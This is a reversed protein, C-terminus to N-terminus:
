IINFTHSTTKCDTDTVYYYCFEGTVGIETLITTTGILEGEPYISLDANVVGLDGNLSYYGSCDDNVGTGICVVACANVEWECGGYHCAELGITWKGVKVSTPLCLEASDTQFAGHPKYQVEDEEHITLWEPAHKNDSIWKKSGKSILEVNELKPESQNSGNQTQLENEHHELWWEPAWQSVDDSSQKDKKAAAVNPFLAGSIGTVGVTKLAKRRTPKYTRRSNKKDSRNSKESMWDSM